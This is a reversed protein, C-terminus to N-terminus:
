GRRVTPPAALVAEHPDTAPEPEGPEAKLTDVLIRNVYLLRFLARARRRRIHEANRMLWVCLAAIPLEFIVADGVAAWTNMGPRSTVVDFWADVVLMTATMAAAVEIWVSRRHALWMTAGLACVLGVDYGVWALEYHDDYQRQPLTVALVVIWPVLGVTFLAFLPTVWRPLPMPHLRGGPQPAAHETGVLADRLPGEPPLPLAPLPATLAEFTAGPPGVMAALADTDCDGPPTGQSKGLRVV